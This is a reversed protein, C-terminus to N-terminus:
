VAGFPAARSLHLATGYRNVFASVPMVFMPYHQPEHEFSEPQRCQCAGDDRKERLNTQGELPPSTGAEPTAGKAGTTLTQVVATGAGWNLGPSKTRQPPSGDGFEGANQTAAKAGTTLIRVMSTGAGMYRAKGTVKKEALKKAKAAEKKAKM